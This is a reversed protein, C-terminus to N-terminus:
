RSLPAIEPPSPTKSTGLLTLLCLLYSFTILLCYSLLLIHDFGMGTNTYTFARLSILDVLGVFTEESGIPLQIAVANANLKARVSDVAREFSAGDRDMKNVFCISPVNQKQIQRWVTKTQAQVGSVADIVVV